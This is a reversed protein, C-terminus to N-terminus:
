NIVSNLSNILERISFLKLSDFDDGIEEIKNELVNQLQEVFEREQNILGPSNHYRSKIFHIYSQIQTSTLNFIANATDEPNWSNLLPRIRYRNERKWIEDFFTNPEEVFLEFLEEKQDSEERQVSQDNVEKCLNFLREFQNGYPRETNDINYGFDNIAHYQAANDNIIQNFQNFIDEVEGELVDNHSLYMITDAVFLTESINFEANECLKIAKNTVRNLEEESDIRRFDYLKNYIEATESVEYGLQSKIQKKFNEINFRGNVILSNVEDFVTISLGFQSFYNDILEFIQPEREQENEDDLAHLMENVGLLRSFDDQQLQDINDEQVIGKKYEFSVALTYIVLKRFVEDTLEDILSGLSKLLYRLKDLSFEYSRLNQEAGIEYLRNILKEQSRILSDVDNKGIHKNFIQEIVDKPSDFKITTGILKEKVDSYIESESLKSEDGIIITKISYHEVFNNIWGLVAAIGLNSDIRELDDFILLFNKNERFILSPSLSGIVANLNKNKLSFYSTITSIFGSSKVIEPIKDKQFADIFLHFKLEDISKIGYLSLYTVEINHRFDKSEIKPIVSKKVYYTKGSGWKGNILLASKVARKEIYDFIVREIDEMSM